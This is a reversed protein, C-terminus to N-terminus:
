TKKHSKKNCFCEDEHKEGDEYNEFLRSCYQCIVAKEVDFTIINGPRFRCRRQHSDRYEKTSLGIHCYQCTYYNEIKDPDPEYFKKPDIGLTKAFTHGYYVLLEEDPCIEKCTRYFMKGDYQFAVLNQEASSRACNVYRLYNSNREDTKAATVSGLSDPTRRFRLEFPWDWCNTNTSCKSLSRASECTDM